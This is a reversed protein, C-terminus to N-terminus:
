ATGCGGRRIPSAGMRTRRQGPTVLDVFTLICESETLCSLWPLTHTHQVDVVPSSGGRCVTLQPVSGFRAAGRRAASCLVYVMPTKGMNHWARM